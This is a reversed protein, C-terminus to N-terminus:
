LFGTGGERAEQQTWEAMFDEVVAGSLRECYRTIGQEDGGGAPDAYWHTLALHKGQPFEGGDDATWPAAIFAKTPDAGSGEFKRALDEIEALRQPDDAITEDYWLINYGHELNHVLQEVDPRDDATYFKREFPAWDPRHAGYAPPAQDYDIEQPAAIHDAGGSAPEQQVPTCGAAAEAVGFEALDTAAIQQDEQRDQWLSWGTVGIIIAAVVGVVGSFLLLRKREASKRERELQAIRERRENAKSPKAV